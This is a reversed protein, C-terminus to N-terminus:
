PQIDVSNVVFSSILTTLPKKGEKKNFFSTTKSAIDRWGAATIDRHTSCRLDPAADSWRWLEDGNWLSIYQGQFCIERAVKEQHFILPSKSDVFGAYTIADPIKTKM